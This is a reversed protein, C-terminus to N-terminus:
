DGQDAHAAAPQNAADVEARDFRVARTGPVSHKTLRGSKAWRDVTPKSIRLYEAVEDRTMWRTTM